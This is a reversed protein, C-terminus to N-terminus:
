GSRVRVLTETFRMLLLLTSERTEAEHRLEVNLQVPDDILEIRERAPDAHAGV